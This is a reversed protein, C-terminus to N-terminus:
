STHGVQFLISYHFIKNSGKIVDSELHLSYCISKELFAKDIAELIFYSGLDYHIMGLSPQFFSFNGLLFLLDDQGLSFFGSKNGVWFGDGRIRMGRRELDLILL